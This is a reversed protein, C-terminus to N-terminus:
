QPSRAARQTTPAATIPRQALDQAGFVAERATELARDLAGLLVPNGDVRTATVAPRLPLVQWLHRQVRAALADGGARCTSGTLVVLEPDLVAAIPALGTALRAALADLFEGTGREVAEAATSADIGHSAALELVADGGALDQFDRVPEGHVTAGRGPIPMYGIEGAGGTAGRHLSGGLDIALGIGDAVWLLAFSSPNGLGGRHREAIGALNVDNEAEVSIGLAARIRGLLGPRAWATLEDDPHRLTDTNQDYSGPLGIVLAALDSVALGAQATAEALAATVDPLPDTDAGTRYELEAIVQATIDAVAVAIRGPVVDMSAVHAASPNVAYLVANPGRGGASTGAQVVLGAEELRGLLQSATPKSLGTLVGLQVRSLPGQELLLGLATRDNIARLLRPTGPTRSM